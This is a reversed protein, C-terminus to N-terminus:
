WFVGAQNNFFISYYNREIYKYNIFIVISKLASLKESVNIIPNSLVNRLDKSSQCADFLTQMDRAVVELKNDTLAQQILAQAYRNAIKIDSM